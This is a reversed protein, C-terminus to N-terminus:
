KAIHAKLIDRLNLTVDNGKYAELKKRSTEWDKKCVNVIKTVLEGICSEVTDKDV